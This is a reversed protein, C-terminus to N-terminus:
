HGINKDLFTEIRKYLEAINEPKVFGHGESPAVFTEAPKGADQLAAQMRKFQNFAATQDDGGHVLLVPVKLENVRQAPSITALAQTDSGLTRDFFRETRVGAGNSADTKRMAPLDYVGAYGIACKYLDPHLIPQILASYGGFSGGYMCIRNPDALKNDIAWHVAATIDDQIKTGWGLWGSEQFGEGRGGSGRYNVQLVSYGRSALFQVDDQFGWTDYVDFPGGHPMVVMPGPTTNNGTYFGYLKQGDPGTFSFPRTSAMQEPKLWSKRDIVKQLKKSARDYIYYSGIDRDSWTAFLLKNGDRSTDLFSIMHDPFAQLLGAHLQAWESNANIYEVSPKDADYYVGFPVNSRGDFLFENVSVDDRGALKTRTGAAMDIKYAQFPNMGDSVLAYVTNNDTDFHASRIMYNAISKPLPAWADGKHPRYFLVPHDNDDLQTRIRAEGTRDFYYSALKDGREMEKREGTITNV